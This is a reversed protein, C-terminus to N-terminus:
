RRRWRTSARQARRRALSDARRRRGRGRRRHARHRAASLSSRSPARRAGRPTDLRWPGHSGSGNPRESKAHNFGDDTRGLTLGRRAARRFEAIRAPRARSDAPRRRRSGRSYRGSLGALAEQPPQIPTPTLRVFERAADVVLGVSRGGHQVVLLRTRLDYPAREFGFRARLNVAPVVQGRSFVVGDVFPAANPVARSRSSWRSTSCTAAACRTPRAPSPSCSSPTWATTLRSGDASLREAPAGRRGRARAAAILAASRSDARRPRRRSRDRRFHRRGQDAPRRDARVVIERQGIIRDVALGVADVGTGVVFVHLADARSARRHRVAPWGSSRCRAAATRRSRTARRDARVDASEVEIVERVAGQPM